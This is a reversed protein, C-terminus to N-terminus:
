ILGFLASIMVFAALANNSINRISSSSDIEDYEEVDGGESALELSVEFVGHGAQEGTQLLRDNRMPDFNGLQRAGDTDAFSLVVLGSATITRPNIFFASILVTSISVKAQGEDAVTTLSNTSEPTIFAIVM